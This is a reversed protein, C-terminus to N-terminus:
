FLSFKILTVLLMVICLFIYDALNEFMINLSCMLDKSSSCINLLVYIVPVFYLLVRHGRVLVNGFPVFFMM